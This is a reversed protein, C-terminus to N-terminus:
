VEIEEIDDEGVAGVGSTMDEADEEEQIQKSSKDVKAAKNATARGWGGEGKVARWLDAVKARDKGEYKEHAVTVGVIKGIFTDTDISQVAKPCDLGLAMITNRLNFLAQPLLSTNHFLKQGKYEGTGIVLEWKLYKSGKESTELTVKSVKCIYDGEPVTVFGEQVNTMDVKIKAM